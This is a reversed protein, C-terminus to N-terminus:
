CAHVEFRTIEIREPHAFFAGIWERIDAADMREDITIQVAPKEREIRDMAETCSERISMVGMM